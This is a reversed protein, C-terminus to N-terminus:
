DAMIGLRYLAGKATMRDQMSPPRTSRNCLRDFDRATVIDEVNDIGARALIGAAIQFDANRNERAAAIRSLRVNKAKETAAAQLQPLVEQPVRRLTDNLVDLPLKALSALVADVTENTTTM